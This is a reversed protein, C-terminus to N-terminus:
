LSVGLQNLSISETTEELLESFRLTLQAVMEADDFAFKFRAQDKNFRRIYYQNDAIIFCDQAVKAADNTKYVTMIHSYTKLLDFMRPCHQTFFQAELLVITLRNQPQKALFQNILEFRKQSTYGGRSLDADFILLENEACAIVLNLAEEYNREGLVVQNPILELNNATM